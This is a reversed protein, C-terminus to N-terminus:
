HAIAAGRAFRARTTARTPSFARWTARRPAFRASRLRTKTTKTEDEDENENENENENGDRPQNAGRNWPDVGTKKKEARRPRDHVDLVCTEGCRACLVARFAKRTMRADAKESTMAVLRATLTPPRGLRVASVFAARTTGESNRTEDDRATETERRRRRARAFRNM